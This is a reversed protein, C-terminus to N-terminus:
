QAPVHTFLVAEQRATYQDLRDILVELRKAKQLLATMDDAFSRAANAHRQAQRASKVLTTFREHLASYFAETSKNMAATTNIEIASMQASQKFQQSIAHILDDAAREVNPSTSPLTDSPGTPEAHTALETHGPLEALEALEQKELLEPRNM